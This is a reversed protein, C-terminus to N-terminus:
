EASRFVELVEEPSAADRLRQKFEEGQLLRSVRALLKVYVNSALKPGVLMVVLDVPSSDLAEFELPESTRAFVVELNEVENSLAHPLAIGGGIGTSMVRERKQLEGMLVDSQRVRGSHVLMGVMKQLLDDKDRAELGTAILDTAAYDAIRM